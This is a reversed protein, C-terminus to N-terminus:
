KGNILVGLQVDNVLKADGCPYTNTDSHCIIYGSLKGHEEPEGYSVDSRVPLSVSKELMQKQVDRDRWNTRYADYLTNNALVVRVTAGGERTSALEEGDGLDKGWAAIPTSTAYPWFTLSAPVPVEVGMAHNRSRQEDTHLSPAVYTYVNEVAERLDNPMTLSQPLKTELYIQTADLVQPNYVHYSGSAKRNDATGDLPRNPDILILMKRTHMSAPRVNEHRHIRGARQILLDIPAIETIMADFDVDLSQEVVQTAVLISRKPRYDKESYRHLCEAEIQARKEVTYRAHFLLVTDAEYNNLVQIAKYIERASAITNAMVCINGSDKVMDLAMLAVKAPSNLAPSLAYECAFTRFPAVTIESLPMAADPTYATLLPYATSAAHVDGAYASLYSQKKALPLTASLLIVPIGLDRCWSLLCEIIDSMYADYAHVEDIILVKETLGLLRLVSYKILMVSMMAQDVTGVANEALMGKRVPALWSSGPTEPATGNDASTDAIDHDAEDAVAWATGHLLKLQSHGGSASSITNLMSKMRLYMQNSTASTPLAFYFGHRHYKKMMRFALYISAETKGSGTIDEMIAFQPVDQLDYVAKQMPRMSDASIMPFLDAYSKPEFVPSSSIGISSVEKGACSLALQLYSADDSANLNESWTDSALWDSVIVIGWLLTCVCNWDDCKISAIDCPFLTRIREEIKDQLAEYSHRVSSMNIVESDPTANANIHHLAEVTALQSGAEYSVGHSEWIRQVVAGSYVEHRFPKAYTCSKLSLGADSLRQAVEPYDNIAKRQFAPHAKGIDHMAVIYSIFSVAEDATLGTHKCIQYLSSSFSDRVLVSACAGADIMHHVLSKFPLKAWLLDATEGGSM